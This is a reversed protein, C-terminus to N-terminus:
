RKKKGKKAKPPQPASWDIEDIDIGDTKKGQQFERHAKVMQCFAKPNKFAYQLMRTGAAFSRYECINMLIAVSEKDGRVIVIKQFDNSGEIIKPLEKALESSNMRRM